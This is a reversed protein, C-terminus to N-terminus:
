DGKPWKSERYEIQEIKRDCLQLIDNLMNVGQEGLVNSFRKKMTEMDKKLSKLMMIHNSASKYKIIDQWIM